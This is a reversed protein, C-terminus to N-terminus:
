ITLGQRLFLYFALDIAHTLYFLAGSKSMCKPCQWRRLLFSCPSLPHSLSRRLSRQSFVHLCSGSWCFWAKVTGPRNLLMRFPGLLQRVAPFLPSGRGMGNRADTKARQTQPDAFTEKGQHGIPLGPGGVAPKLGQELMM